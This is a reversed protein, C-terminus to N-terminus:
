LATLAVAGFLAASALSWSMTLMSGAGDDDGNSDEDDDGDGNGDDDGGSGEDKNDEKEGDEKKSGDENAEAGQPSKKCSKTDGEEVGPIPAGTESIDCRKDGKRNQFKFDLNAMKFSGMEVDSSGLWIRMLDFWTPMSGLSGPERNFWDNIEDTQEWVNITANRVEGSETSQIRGGEDADAFNLTGNENVTLNTALWPVGYVVEDLVVLYPRRALM